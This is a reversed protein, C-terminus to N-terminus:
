QAAPAPKSPRRLLALLVLGSLVAISAPRMPSHAFFIAGNAVMFLLFGHVAWTLWRARLAYREPAILLMAADATWVIAFLYNLWLGFGSDVGTSALTQRATEEFASTHSWHHVAWFAAVVHLLFCLAGAAWAWRAMESRRLIWAGAALAYYSM